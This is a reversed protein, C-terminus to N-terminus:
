VTLLHNLFSIDHKKNLLIQLGAYLYAYEVYHERARCDNLLWDQLRSFQKENIQGDQFRLILEGLEVFEDMEDDAGYLDDVPDLGKSSSGEFHEFFEKEFNQSM